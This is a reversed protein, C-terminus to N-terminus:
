LMILRLCMNEAFSVVLGIFKLLMYRLKYLLDLIYDSVLVFKFLVIILRSVLFLTM